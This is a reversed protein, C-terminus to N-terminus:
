LLVMGKEMRMECRSAIVNAVVEALLPSDGDSCKCYEGLINSSNYAICNMDIKRSSKAVAGDCWFRVRTENEM